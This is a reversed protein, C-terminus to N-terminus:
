VPDVRNDTAAPNPFTDMNEDGQRPNLCSFDKELLIKLQAGSDLSKEGQLTIEDTQMWRQAMVKPVFVRICDDSYIAELCDHLGIELKYLLQAGLGFDTTNEVVGINELQEMESRSLRFRITNGLIRLKM